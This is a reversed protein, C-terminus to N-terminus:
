ITALTRPAQSKRWEHASYVVSASCSRTRTWSTKLLEPFFKHHISTNM